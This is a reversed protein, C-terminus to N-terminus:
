ERDDQQEEPANGNKDWGAKKFLRGVLTVPVAVVGWLLLWLGLSPLLHDSQIGTAFAGLLCLVSWLVLMFKALGPM